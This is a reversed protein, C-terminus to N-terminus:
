DCKAGDQSDAACQSAEDYFRNKIAYEIGEDFKKLSSYLSVAARRLAQSQKEDTLRDLTAYTDFATSKKILEILAHADRQAIYIDVLENNIDILGDEILLEFYPRVLRTIEYQRALRLVANPDVSLFDKRRKDLLEETQYYGLRSV